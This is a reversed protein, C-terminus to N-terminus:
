EDEDEWEEESGWGQNPDGESAPLDFYNRPKHKCIKIPFPLADNQDDYCAIDIGIFRYEPIGSAKVVEEPSLSLDAYAEYWPFERIAKDPIEVWEGDVLISGHQKVLYEPHKSLFERNWDAVLDYIDYWGFNGYGDYSEEYVYGGDPMSVYAMRGEQLAITNDYDAYMWSFQGM